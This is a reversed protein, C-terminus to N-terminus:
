VFEIVAMRAADKVRNGIKIIRTYGGKRDKYKPSITKFVEGAGKAGIKSVILRRSAVDGNKGLTVLKEVFPQVEKAKAETTQMKKRLVLSLALSKILAVRVKRERGLKRSAKHHKM